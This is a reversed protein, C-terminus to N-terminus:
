FLIKTLIETNAVSAAVKPNDTIVLAVVFTDISGTARWSIAKALSRTHTETWRALKGGIATKQAITSKSQQPFSVVLELPTIRNRISLRLTELLRVIPM